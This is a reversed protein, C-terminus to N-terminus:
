RRRRLRAVKHSAEAGYQVDCHPLELFYSMNRCNQREQRWDARVTCEAFNAVLVGVRGITAGTSSQTDPGDPDRDPIPRWHNCNESLPPQGEDVLVDGTGSAGVLREHPDCCADVGLGHVFMIRWPGPGCADHRQVRLKRGHKGFDNGSLPSCPKCKLIRLQGQRPVFM